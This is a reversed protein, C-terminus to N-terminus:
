EKNLKNVIVQAPRIVRNALMYGRNQVQVIADDLFQENIVTGTAEQQNPNFPDGPNVIIEQVGQAELLDLLQKQIHKIGVLWPTEAQDAPACDTARYFNDVVPLLEHIFGVQGYTIINSREQDFRRQANQLDALARQWKAKYDEEQSPEEQAPVEEQETEEAPESPEEVTPIVEEQPSDPSQKPNKKM